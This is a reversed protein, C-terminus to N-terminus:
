GVGLEGILRGLVREAVLHEEAIVRAARAHRDPEAAVREVAVAAQELTTFPLLGDGGPLVRQFGTDQALV